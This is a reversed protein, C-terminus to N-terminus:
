PAGGKAPDAEQTRLDGPEVEGDDYCWSKGTWGAVYWKTGDGPVRRDLKVLDGLYDRFVMDPKLEHRRDYWGTDDDEGQERCEPHDCQGTECLFTLHEQDAIHQLLNAM